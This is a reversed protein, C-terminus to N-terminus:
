KEDEMYFIVTNETNDNIGNRAYSYWINYYRKRAEVPTSIADELQFDTMMGDVDYLIGVVYPLKVENGAAQQGTATMVAPTIDISARKETSQWYNVGEYQGDLKLYEPNFIEPFVHARAETFLPTYLIARQKDKPTHRLLQYDVGNVQKPPTYHFFKTRDTMFDSAFKFETVFFSLFEQLHTTRLEESTYSTGFKTNFEKTLNIASHPMSDKMDYVSAIKNLLVMRNFAEKTSEIDNQKEIMAGSVFNMFEEESRFAVKLQDTTVTTCTQWVDSGAFNIEVTVPLDQKWMSATSKAQGDVMNQGNDYGTQLNTFLNTNFAGSEVNERAYYSVKRLRNTYMGSDTSNIINLKSKYPRAAVLLKGMVIGLSNLVNERGTSLVTEGASIFSSTDTAVVDSQGTAQKVLLNMIAYADTPTFSKGMINGKV